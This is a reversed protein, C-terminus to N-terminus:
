SRVLSKTKKDEWIVLRVIKTTKRYVLDQEEKIVLM